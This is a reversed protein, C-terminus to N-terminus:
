DENATFSAEKEEQRLDDDDSNRREFQPCGFEKYTLMGSRPSQPSVCVGWDLGAGGVASSDVDTPANRIFSETASRCENAGPLSTALCGPRSKLCTNM